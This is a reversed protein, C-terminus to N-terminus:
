DEVEPLEGNGLGLRVQGRGTNGHPGAHRDRSDPGACQDVGNFRDCGHCSGDPRRDPQSLRCSHGGSSRIGRDVPRLAVTGRQGDIHQGIPDEDLDALGVALSPGPGANKDRGGCLYGSAEAPRRRDGHPGVDSRDLHAVVDQEIGFIAEFDLHLTLLVHDQTLPIDM